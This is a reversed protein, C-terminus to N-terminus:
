WREQVRSPKLVTPLNDLQVQLWAKPATSVKALSFLTSISEEKATSTTLYLFIIRIQLSLTDTVMAM